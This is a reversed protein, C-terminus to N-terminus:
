VSRAMPMKGPTVSRYPLRAKNVRLPVGLAVFVLAPSRAQPGCLLCCTRQVAAIGGAAFSARAPYAMWRAELNLNRHPAPTQAPRGGLRRDNVLRILTPHHIERAIAARGM